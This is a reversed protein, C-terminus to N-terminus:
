PTNRIREILDKHDKGYIDYLPAVAEKFKEKEDESLEIVTVGLKRVEQEASKEAEVWAKRQIDVSDKAANKILEFDERSLKDMIKKSAIVVEPTRTHTDLLYYKAIEYHKMSLYSSWNNEAGDVKNTRLENYTDGFILPVPIAGLASVLDMFLQSQQVRIKLGKMDDISNVPKKTYFCRVGSDYYALGVLNHKILTNLLEEGIPGNLVNWLHDSDRFLYPLSLINHHSDIETLPASNVRAFDIGGFQVQEIVSKEDGLKAGYYPIIKIKGGSREEVLRAFEKDGITAPHGMSHNEALRFVMEGSNPKPAPKKEVVKDGNINGVGTVDTVSM